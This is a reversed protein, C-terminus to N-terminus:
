SKFKGVITDVAEQYIEPQNEKADKLSELFLELIKKLEPSSQELITKDDKYFLNGFAEKKTKIEETISEKQEKSMAQTYDQVPKEFNFLLDIRDREKKMEPTERMGNEYLSQELLSFDVKRFVEGYKRLYEQAEKKEINEDPTNQDKTTHELSSLNGLVSGAAKSNDYIPILRYDINPHDVRLVPNGALTIEEPDIKIINRDGNRFDVYWWDGNSLKAINLVHQYPNGYYSKIGGKELLDIGLLTAGVCNFEKTERMRKPWSDWMTSKEGSRDFDRAIKDVQAHAKKIYELELDSKEDLNEANKIKEILNQDAKLGWENALKETDNMLSQYLWDKIEDQSMGAINEPIAVNDVAMSTWIEGLTQKQEASLEPREQSTETNESKEPNSM